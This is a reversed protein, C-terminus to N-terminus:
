NAAYIDRLTEARARIDPTVAKDTIIKDLAEVASDNKGERAYVLADLELASFRWTSKKGSASELMKHLDAPEATELTQSAEFVAALERWTKDLRSTERIDRYLAVAEDTRGQELLAAAATLKAMAAHPKRLDDAAKSIQAVDGSRLSQLLVATNQENQGADYHRWFALVGTFVVALIAGGIIASGNEQWFAVLKQHRLDDDIENFLDSM